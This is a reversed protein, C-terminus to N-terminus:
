QVEDGSRSSEIRQGDVQLECDDPVEQGTKSASCLQADNVGQTSEVEPEQRPVFVIRQGDVRVADIKPSGVYSLYGNIVGLMNVSLGSGMFMLEAHPHDIPSDTMHYTTSLALTASPYQQSLGNLYECMAVTQDAASM